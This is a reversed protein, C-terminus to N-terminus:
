VLVKPKSNLNKSAIRLLDQNNKVFSNTSNNDIENESSLNNKKKDIINNETNIDDNEDVLQAANDVNNLTTEILTAIHTEFHQKLEQTSQFSTQCIPCTSRLMWLAATDLQMRAAATSTANATKDTNTLAADVTNKGNNAAVVASIAATMLPSLVNNGFMSTTAENNISPMFSSLSASIPNGVANAAM